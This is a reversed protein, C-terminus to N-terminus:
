EQYHYLIGTDTPTWFAAKQNSAKLANNTWTNCTHFLCYSGKAEYFADNKGYVADTEIKMFNDSDLLFSDNIYDILKQYEAESVMIKKCHNNEKLSKYFTAHIASTNFGTAAKLATSLRLDNWTPTELYFGKDGWGFAIMQATSDKAITNEFKVKQGWDFMHNKVPLVIDTHVDNSLIYIPITKGEESVDSNVPIKPLVFACLIYIFLFGIFGVIIKLLFKAAKKITM